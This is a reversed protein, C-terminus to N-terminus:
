CNRGKLYHGNPKAFFGVGKSEGGGVSVAGVEM